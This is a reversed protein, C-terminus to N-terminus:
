LPAGAFSDAYLNELHGQQTSSLGAMADGAFRGLQLDQPGDQNLTNILRLVDNPVVFGDHDTDLRHLRRSESLLPDLNHLDRTGHDNLENIIGIADTASVNLDGDVDMSLLDQMALVDVALMTRAEMQELTLRRLSRNVRTRKSNM